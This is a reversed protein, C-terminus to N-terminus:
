LFTSFGIDRNPAFFTLNNPSVHM